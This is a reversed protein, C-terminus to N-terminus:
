LQHDVPLQLEEHICAYICGYFIISSAKKSLHHKELYEITCDGSTLQTFPYAIKLFNPAKCAFFQKCFSYIFHSSLTFMAKATKQYFIKDNKELIFAWLRKQNESNEM